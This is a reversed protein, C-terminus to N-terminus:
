HFNHSQRKSKGPDGIATLRNWVKSM